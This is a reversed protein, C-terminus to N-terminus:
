SSTEKFLEHVYAWTLNGSVRNLTDKTQQVFTPVRTVQYKEFLTPDIDITIGLEDLKAKTKVFSDQHLGRLILRGQGARAEFALAKLTAAPMSFSVFVLMEGHHGGPHETAQESGQEDLRVDQVGAPKVCRKPSAQPNEGHGKLRYAQAQGQAILAAIGEQDEVQGPTDRQALLDRAAKEDATTPKTALTELTELAAQAALIEADRPSVRPAARVHGQSSFAPIVCVGV